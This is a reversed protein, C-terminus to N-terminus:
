MQDVHTDAHFVLALLYGMTLSAARPKWGRWPVGPRSYRSSKSGASSTLPCVIDRYALHHQGIRAVAGGHHLLVNEAGESGDHFPNFPPICLRPAAICIGHIEGELM